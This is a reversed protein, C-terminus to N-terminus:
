VHGPNFGSYEIEFGKGRCADFSEFWEAGSECISIAEHEPQSRFGPKWLWQMAHFFEHMLTRSVEAVCPKADTYVIVRWPISPDITDRFRSNGDLQQGQVPLIVISLPHSGVKSIIDRFPFSADEKAILDKLLSITESGYQEPLFVPFGLYNAREWHHVPYLEGPELRKSALRKRLFLSPQKFWREIEAQFESNSPTEANMGLYHKGELAIFFRNKNEPGFEGFVAKALLARLSFVLGDLGSYLPKGTGELRIQMKIASSAPWPTDSTILMPTTLDNTQAIVKVDDIDWYRSASGDLLVLLPDQFFGALAASNGELTVFAVVEVKDPEFFDPVEFETIGYASGENSAAFEANAWYLNWFFFGCFLLILYRVVRRTFKGRFYGPFAKDQSIVPPGEVSSKSM